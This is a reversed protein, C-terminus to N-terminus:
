AIGKWHDIHRLPAILDPWTASRAAPSGAHRHSAPKPVRPPGPAARPSAWDQDAADRIGRKYLRLQSELM